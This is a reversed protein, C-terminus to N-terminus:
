NSGISGSRQTCTPNSPFPADVHKEVSGEFYWRAAAEAMTTGGVLVRNWGMSTQCHQTPCADAFVGHPTGPDSAPATARLFRDRFGQIIGRQTANCRRYTEPTLGGTSPWCAAWDQPPTTTDPPFTGAAAPPALLEWEGFNYLSNIVFM